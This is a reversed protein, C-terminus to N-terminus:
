VELQICITVTPATGYGVGTETIVFRVVGNSSTNISCTAAAGTGGGGSITITPAETYGFGANTILIKEISTVNARSTTFAVATANSGSLGSPSTSISVIPTGTFGSGDNNM